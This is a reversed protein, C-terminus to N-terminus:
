EVLGPITKTLAAKEATAAGTLAFGRPNGSPDTFIARVGDSREEVSWAGPHREPPPLVVVPYAPTKVVVPMAPYVVSTEQGALTKALARAANMIPQVFPLLTGAVEACDGLAFVHPDGARLWKDVVIGRNVALGAAQAVHVRPRLGVASLVVDVDLTIHEGRDDAPKLVARVAGDVRHLEALLSGLHWRVGIRELAQKLAAQAPVPLFRALPGHSPEVVHVTKGATCLDNAFECGVLGAGLVAVRAAHDIAARFRTYDTLDNVSMMRDVGDGVLDLHIPDAGVALVLRSFSITEGAGRESQLTVTRRAADIHTLVTRSRVTAQLQTEMETASFVALQEPSKGNSFANSLMPKSYFAGDDRTVVDMAVTKDLKRLERALTYGALGSGVIVIPPTM